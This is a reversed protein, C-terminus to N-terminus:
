GPASRRTNWQYSWSRVPSRPRTPDPRATTSCGPRAAPSSTWRGAKWAWSAPRGPWRSWATCAWRSRRTQGTPRRTSRGCTSRGNWPSATPGGPRLTYGDPTSGYAEGPRVATVTAGTPRAAHRLEALIREGAGGGAYVLWSLPGEADAPVAATRRWVPLHIWQEEPLLPIRDFDQLAGGPGAPPDLGAPPPTEPGIRRPGATRDIWYRTRQFPYTPLPIRGPAAGPYVASDGGDRGHHATWDIDVGLLWLRALCDALVADAPRPDGAAPLTATVMPWRSPPCGSGRLLAGLSQGPGIEVVALQGDALLAAAADAFRVPQCMHRAWYAPDCVLAADAPGGTVNSLYPLVPPNLGVNAAVWATLEGALPALM